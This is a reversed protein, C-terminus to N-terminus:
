ANFIDDPTNGSVTGSWGKGFNITGGESKVNYIGGGHGSAKNETVSSSGSLVLERKNYIGGGNGSAVNQSVSSEGDLVLPGLTFIGGGERAANDSVTSNRLVTV